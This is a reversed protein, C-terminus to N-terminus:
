HGGFGWGGRGPALRGLPAPQGPQRDGHERRQQAAEVGGGIRRPAGGDADDPVVFARPRVVGAVAGEPARPAGVVPIRHVHRRDEGPELVARERREADARPLRAEHRHREAHDRDNGEAAADGADASAPGAEGRRDQEGGVVGGRHVVAGRDHFARHRRRDHHAPPGEGPGLIPRRPARDGADHGDGGVEDFRRRHEEDPRDAQGREHGDRQRTRGRSGRCEGCGASRAHGALAAAGGAQPRQGAEGDGAGEGQRQEHRGLPRLVAEVVPLHRHRALRGVVRLRQQVADRPERHQVVHQRPHPDHDREAQGGEHRPCEVPLSRRKMKRIGAKVASAARARAASRAM